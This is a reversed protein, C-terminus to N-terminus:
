HIIVADSAGTSQGVSMMFSNAFRKPHKMFDKPAVCMDRIMQVAEANLLPMHQKEVMSGTFNQHIFKRAIKWHPNSAQMLIIDDGEYILSDVIYQRPRNSSVASRRDMLEKVLRRDTLVIATKSAFKISYM